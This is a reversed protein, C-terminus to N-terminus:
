RRESKQHDSMKEKKKPVAYQLQHKQQPNKQFPVPATVPAAGGASGMTAAPKSSDTLQTTYLGGGKEVAHFQGDPQLRSAQTAVHDGEGSNLMDDDDQQESLFVTDGEPTFM